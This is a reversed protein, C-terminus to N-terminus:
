ASPHDLMGETQRNEIAERFQEERPNARAFVVRTLSGFIRWGVLSLSAIRNALLLDETRIQCVGDFQIVNAIVEARDSPLVPLYMSDRRTFKLLTGLKDKASPESRKIESIRLLVSFKNRNPVLDCSSNLVAYKPSGIIREGLFYAAETTVIDGQLLSFKDEETDFGLTATDVPDIPRRVLANSANFLALRENTGNLADSFKQVARIGDESHSLSRLERELQILGDTQM